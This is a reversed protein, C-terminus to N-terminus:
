KLLKKQIEVCGEFKPMVIIDLENSSNLRINIWPLEFYENSGQQKLSKEVSEVISNEFKPFDTKLNLRGNILQNAKMYGYFKNRDLGDFNAIEIKNIKYVPDSDKYVVKLRLNYNNSDGIKELQSEFVSFLMTKTIENRLCAIDTISTKKDWPIINNVFTRVFRSNADSQIFSNKIFFSEQTTQGFASVSFCICFIFFTILLNLKM